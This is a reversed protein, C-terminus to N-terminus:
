LTFQASIVQSLNLCGEYSIKLMLRLKLLALKSGRPELLWGYSHMLNRYGRWFARNRSSDVLRARSHNCISVSQSRIMVSCLSLWHRICSKTLLPPEGGKGLLGWPRLDLDLVRPGLGSILPTAIATSLSRTAATPFFHSADVLWDFLEPTLRLRKLGDLQFPQNLVLQTSITCSHQTTNLILDTDLKIALRLHFNKVFNISLPLYTRPTTEPKALPPNFSKTSSDRYSQKRKKSTEKNIQQCRIVFLTSYTTFIRNNWVNSPSTYSLICSYKVSNQWDSSCLQPTVCSSNMFISESAVFTIMMM